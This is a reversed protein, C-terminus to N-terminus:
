PTALHRPDTRHRFGPPSRKGLLPVPVRSANPRTVTLPVVVEPAGKGVDGGNGCRTTGSTYSVPPKVMGPVEYASGVQTILAFHSVVVVMAGSGGPGSRRVVDLTLPGPESIHNVSQLQSPGSLVCVCLPSGAVPWSGLRWSRLSLSAPDTTTIPM